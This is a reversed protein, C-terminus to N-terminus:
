DEAAGEDVDTEVVYKFAVGGEIETPMLEVGAPAEYTFPIEAHDEETTFVDVTVDAGDIKCGVLYVSEGKGLGSLDLYANKVFTCNTFETSVYPKVLRGVVNDYYIGQVFNCNEFTVSAYPGAFSVWGMITSNTVVIDIGELTPYEATNFGYCIGDGAITVNDLIVDEVPTYLVIARFGADIKLNTITGGYTIIAYYNGSGNVTLTHGNGDFIGGRQAVGVSNGYPCKLSADFELDNMLIVHKGAELAAILEDATTVLTAKCGTCTGDEGATHIGTAPVVTKETADCRSCKKETYGDETCTAEVEPLDITYDHGAPDLEQPITWEGCDKCKYGSTLGDETCTPEKGLVFVSNEHKCVEPTPDDPVEPVEPVEPECAAFATVVLVLAMVVLLTKIIKKM